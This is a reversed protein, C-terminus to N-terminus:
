KDQLDVLEDQSWKGSRCQVRFIVLIRLRKQNEVDSIRRCLAEDGVQRIVGAGDGGECPKIEIIHQNAELRWVGRLALSVIILYREQLKQKRQKNQLDLNLYLTMKSCLYFHLDM